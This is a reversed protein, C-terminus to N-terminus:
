SRNKLFNLFISFFAMKPCFVAKKSGGFNKKSFGAGDSKLFWLLSGEYWFDSFDLSRIVLFTPLLRVSQRVSPRVFRRVLAFRYDRRMFETPGFICGLYLSAGDFEICKKLFIM